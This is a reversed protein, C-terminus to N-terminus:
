AALHARAAAVVPDVGIARACEHRYPCVPHSCPRCAPYSALVVHRSKDAPAWRRTDSGSAVVVSRTGVAAAVHSVGTDNCVVLSVRSILAALGGLTTQGALSVARHRM